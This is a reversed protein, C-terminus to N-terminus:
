ILPMWSFGASRAPEHQGKMIGKVFAVSPNHCACGGPPPLELGDEELSGASHTLHEAGGMRAQAGGEGAEWSLCRDAWTLLQRSEGPSDPQTTSSQQTRAPKRTCPSTVTGWQTGAQCM